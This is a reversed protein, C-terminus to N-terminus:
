ASTAERGVRRISLFSRHEDDNRPVIKARQSRDNQSRYNSMRTNHMSTNFMWFRKRILALRCIYAGPYVPPTAFSALFATTLTTRLNFLSHVSIACVYAAV